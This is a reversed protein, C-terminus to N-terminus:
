LRSQLIQGVMDITIDQQDGVAKLGRTVFRQCIQDITQQGINHEGLLTLVGLERFFSDTQQITKTVRENDSGSTINWVQQGFQLIKQKRKDANALMLGPAVIALTVAHDLGHLATLEHGIQHTAWCQPVGVAIIGNLAMTAAWALNARNNYDPTDISAVAKRGETILVRFIAEAMQDQVPSNVPYTLYQEFTHIFADVIGNVVQRKPLSYAFSPDLVSFQPMVLPSGFSLKEKTAAKTVVSNGNMESGTASLTLVTALPMAKTVKAGKSLIDWPDGNYYAAAAILKTGDIVSGGGVALLFNINKQKVIELGKMCTEFHPNPEIGGFETVDFANLAQKVQDYVGNKFISGGGYTMLIKSGEPIYKAMEAVKGKGFLIRVPNHFNFNDM